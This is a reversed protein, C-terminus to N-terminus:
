HFKIRASAGQLCEYARCRDIAHIEKDEAEMEAKDFAQMREVEPASLTTQAATLLQGM